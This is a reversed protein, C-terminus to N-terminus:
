QDITFVSMVWSHIVKKLFKNEDYTLLIDFWFYEEELTGDFLKAGESPEPCEHVKIAPVPNMIREKYMSM